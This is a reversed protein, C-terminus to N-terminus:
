LDFLGKIGDLLGDSRAIAARIPTVAAIADVYAERREPTISAALRLVPDTSELAGAGRAILHEDISALIAAHDQIPAIMARHLTGDPKEIKISISGDRGITADAIRSM